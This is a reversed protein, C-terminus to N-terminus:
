TERRKGGVRELNRGENEMGGGRGYEGGGFVGGGEEGTGEGERWGDGCKAKDGQGRGDLPFTDKRGTCPLRICITGRLDLCLSPILIPNPTPCQKWLHVRWGEGWSHELRQSTRTSTMTGKFTGLTQHDAELERYWRWM